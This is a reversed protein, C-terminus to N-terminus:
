KKLLCAYYFGDMAAMGTLIQRGHSTAMGWDANILLETADSHELLFADIQQENEQKLVSCTAYLLVGGTVLM